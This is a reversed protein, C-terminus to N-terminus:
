ECMNLFCVVSKFHCRISFNLFENEQLYNWRFSGQTPQVPKV